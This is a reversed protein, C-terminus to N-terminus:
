RSWVSAAGTTGASAGRCVDSLTGVYRLPYMAHGAARLALIEAHATPDHDRERRNEAEAIARGNADVIVAGVPVDGAEGAMQALAIAREM